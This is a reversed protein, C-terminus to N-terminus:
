KLANQLATICETAKVQEICEYSLEQLMSFFEAEYDEQIGRALIDANSEEVSIGKVDAIDQEKQSNSIIGATVFSVSLIVLVILTIMWIRKM